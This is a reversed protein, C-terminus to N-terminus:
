PSSSESAFKPWHGQAAPLRNCWELEIEWFTEEKYRGTVVYYPHPGTRQVQKVTFDIDPNRRLCVRDGKQFRYQVNKITIINAGLKEDYYSPTELNSRSM